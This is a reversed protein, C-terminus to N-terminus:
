PTLADGIQETNNDWISSTTGGVTTIAAIIAVVLLALLMAYEAATPGSDDRLWTAVRRRNRDIAM